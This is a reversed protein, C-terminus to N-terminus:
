VLRVQTETRRRETHTSFRNDNIQTSPRPVIVDLDRVQTTNCSTFFTANISYVWLKRYISVALITQASLFEISRGKNIQM